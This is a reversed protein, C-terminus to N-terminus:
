KLTRIVKYTGTKVNKVVTNCLTRRLPDCLKEIGGRLETICEARCQRGEIGRPPKDAPRQVTM